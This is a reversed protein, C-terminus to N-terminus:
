DRTTQETEQKSGGYHVHQRNLRNSVGSHYLRNLRKGVGSHYIYRNM